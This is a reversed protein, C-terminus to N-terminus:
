YRTLRLLFWGYQYLATEREITDCTLFFFFDIFALYKWDERGFM